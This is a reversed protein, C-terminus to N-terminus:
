SSKRVSKDLFDYIGSAALGIVISFAAIDIYIAAQPFVSSLKFVLALAIGTAMSIVRLKNGKLGFTKIFEVLGFVIILLSAPNFVFEAIYM